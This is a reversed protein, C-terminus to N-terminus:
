VLPPARSPPGQRTSGGPAARVLDPLSARFVVQSLRYASEGSPLSLNAGVQTCLRHDHQHVCRAPDHASEVATAGLLTGREMMPVAVSLGLTLLVLTASTGRRLPKGQRNM